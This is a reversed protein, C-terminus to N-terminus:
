CTVNRGKIECRAIVRGQTDYGTLYWNLGSADNPARELMSFGFIGTRGVGDKVTVGNIKLGKMVEPAYADLDDGGHGSVIQLPLDEVYSMVGFAHIHGSILAQVNPSLSGRAAAALTQNDGPFAGEKQSALAWIPRHFTLWVPGSIAAAMAFQPKYWAAQEENLKDVATSVDMVIITVGGIDVTYPKAAGLCGDVGESSDFPYPDLTRAWGKGGRECVEHNGRDMVWPAAALLAEAPKFFDEKWVDWTDGFPTGACGLRNAPCDSERYHMDGVHLVLDPKLSASIDAGVRFPWQAIDNCDQVTAGKLRCGTDGILLIRDFQAKPMPMPKRDLTVLKAGKPIPLACGRVPYNPGPASREAMVAAAGDITAAPCSPADTVARAEIGGPVYQVWRYLDGAQAQSYVAIFLLVAFLIGATVPRSLGKAASYFCNPKLHM